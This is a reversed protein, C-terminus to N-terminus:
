ENKPALSKVFREKWIFDAEEFDVIQEYSTAADRVQTYLDVGMMMGRAIAFIFLPIYIAAELTFYAKLKM